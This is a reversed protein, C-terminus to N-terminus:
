HFDEAFLSWGRAVTTRDAHQGNEFLSIACVVATMATRDLTDLQKDPDIGSHQAVFLTYRRTDNEDPPAYRAIMQRLTRCAHRRAYTHLLVFIARYGWELSGFQRFQPDASPRIEGKYRIGSLRINGPNCNRLGRPTM